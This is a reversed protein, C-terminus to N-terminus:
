KENVAADCSVDMEVNASTVGDKSKFAAASIM